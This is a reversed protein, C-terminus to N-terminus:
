AESRENTILQGAVEIWQKGTDSLPRLTFEFPLNLRTETEITQTGQDAHARYEINPTVPSPSSGKGEKPKLIKKLFGAFLLGLLGVGVVVLAQPVDKILKSIWDDPPPPPVLPTPMALVINVVSRPEVATGPSPSQTIVTGQQSNSSQEIVQGLKLGVLQLNRSAVERSQGSLDPVMIPLPLTPLPSPPPIVIPTALVVNVATGAPATTNALPEQRIVTEQASNSPETSISGLRFGARQLIQAAIDQTQGIVSPVPTPTPVPTLTPTPTSPKSPIDFTLGVSSGREVQTGPARSQNSVVAGPLSTSVGVVYAVNLGVRDLEQKAQGLTKAKLDPVTVQPPQVAIVFNVPSKQRVLEGAAPSQRLILGYNGSAEEDTKAGVEWGAQRIEQIARSETLGIVRPVTFTTPRPSPNRSSTTMSSSPDSPRQVTLKVSAGAFVTRGRTPSQDIVMLDDVDDQRAQFGAKLQINELIRKAESVTKNRVDPVTRTNQGVGQIINELLSNKKRYRLVVQTEPTLIAGPEPFQIVVQGPQVQSTEMETKQIRIDKFIAKIEREADKIDKGVLPPMLQRQRQASMRGVTSDQANLRSFPLALITVLLIFFQLLLFKKM